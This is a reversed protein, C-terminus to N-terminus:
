PFKTLYLLLGIKKHKFKLSMSKKMISTDGEHEFPAVNIPLM